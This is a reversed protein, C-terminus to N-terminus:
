YINNEYYMINEPHILCKQGSKSFIIKKNKIKKHFLDKGEGGRISFEM